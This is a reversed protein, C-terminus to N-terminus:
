HQDGAEDMLDRYCEACLTHTIGPLDTREFLGLRAIADELEQWRGDVEARKCWSCMRIMGPRQLMTLPPRADERLLYCRYEVEEKPLLAIRMRMCRRRDPADCRFPVEVSGRGARVKKLLASHLNAIEAGAIFRFLPQGIINENLEPAGNETAFRGWAANMGTIRDDGDIRYVVPDETDHATGSPRRSDHGM